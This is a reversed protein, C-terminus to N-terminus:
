VVLFLGNTNMDQVFIIDEHSGIVKRRRSGGESKRRRRSGGGRKGEKRVTWQSDSVLPIGRCCLACHTSSAYIKYEYLASAGTWTPAAHGLSLSTQRPWSFWVTGCTEVRQVFLRTGFHPGWLSVLCVTRSPSFSTQTPPQEAELRNYQFIVANRLYVARVAKALIPKHWPLSLGM